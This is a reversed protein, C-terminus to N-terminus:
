KKDSDPDISFFEAMLESNSKVTKNKNKVLDEPTKEEHESPVNSKGQNDANTNM